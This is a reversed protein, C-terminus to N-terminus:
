VGAPSFPHSHSSTERFLQKERAHWTSCPAQTRSGGGNLTTTISQLMAHHRNAAAAEQATDTAVLHQHRSWRSPVNRWRKHSQLDGCGEAADGM